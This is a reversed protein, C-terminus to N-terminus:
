QEEEASIMRGHGGTRGFFGGEGRTLYNAAGRLLEEDVVARLTLDSGLLTLARSGLGLLKVGRSRGENGVGGKM